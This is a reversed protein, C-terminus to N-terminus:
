QCYMLFPSSCTPHYLSKDQVTYTDPFWSLFKSVGLMKRLGIARSLVDLDAYTTPTSSAPISNLRKLAM